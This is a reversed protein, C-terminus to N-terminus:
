NFCLISPGACYFACVQLLPQHCDFDGIQREGQSFDRLLIWPSTQGFELLYRYHSFCGRRICHRAPHLAETKNNQCTACARMFDPVVQHDQDVFFDRHLRQMTKQIGEHGEMHALQLVPALTRSASPVFIRSGHLILGDQVRWPQGRDAVVFDWLKRLETNDQSEARLENYLLFTPASIAALHPDEQERRSLVDAMTNLRDPRYEVSFDFGFLKSIWQHQPVIFFRQDLMFKLAFHNTHVIFHHGWLYPQWHCVAQVLGILEREYAAIKLHHAAFPKSFFALPGAGQHLVAGFGNGSADCDVMFPAAFDPLHLVPATFLASQLAAFATNAEKM